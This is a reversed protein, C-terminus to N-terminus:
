RPTEQRVVTPPSPDPWPDAAGPPAPRAADPVSTPPHPGPRYPLAVVFRAGPGPDARVTGGCRAVAQAVLALGLGRDGAPGKASKTSWGRNFVSRAQAPTLGPGTDTVTIRVYPEPLEVGDDAAPPDPRPPGGGVGEAGPITAGLVDLGVKISRPGDTPAVTTLVDFGNDLLNGVITVLEPDPAAHPPLYSGARVTVDIGREAGQASKALLLAAMAPNGVGELVRDALRQATQMEEVAFSLAHDTEGLEILSIVTHMRNASEHAQARLAESFVQVRDLEGTLADLETHDRLTVVAGVVTGRVEVPRRTIVLVREASLVLEDTLSEPDVIMAALHAPLGAQAPTRGIAADGLGLLRRGEANISTITGKADLLVMGEHVSALVSDYYTFLRALEKPGMGLTQRRVWRAIILSGAVGVALAGLAILGLYLLRRNTLENIHDVTVGVSVLAVVTGDQEVPVIARVSPGLTGTYTEIGVGGALAAARNGLYTGGIQTPDPHTYRVGEPTMIVIFDTATSTRVSEAYPQMVASPGSIEAGAPQPATVADVVDPSSAVAAAISAVREGTARETEADSDVLVAALLGALVVFLVVAQLALIRRALSWSSGSRM